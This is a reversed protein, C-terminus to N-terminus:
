ILDLAKLIKAGTIAALNAASEQDRLIEERIKDYDSAESVVKMVASSLDTLSDVGLGKSGAQKIAALLQLSAEILESAEKPVKVHVSVYEM